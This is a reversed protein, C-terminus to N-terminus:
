LAEGKSEEVLDEAVEVYSQVISAITGGPTTQLVCRSLIRSTLFRVKQRLVPPLKKIDLNFFEELRPEAKVIEDITLM